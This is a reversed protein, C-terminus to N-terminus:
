LMPSDTGKTSHPATSPAVMWDGAAVKVYVRLWIHPISQQDEEELIMEASQIHPLKNWEFLNWPRIM